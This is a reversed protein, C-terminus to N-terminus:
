VQIPSRQCLPQAAKMGADAAEGEDVGRDGAGSLVVVVGGISAAGADGVGSALVPMVGDAMPTVAVVAPM